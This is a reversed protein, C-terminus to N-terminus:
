NKPLEFERIGEDLGVIRVVQRKPEAAPAAVAVAPAPPQSNPALLVPPPLPEPSQAAPVPTVAGNVAVSLELQKPAEVKAQVPEKSAAPESRKFASILQERSVNLSLVVNEADTGIEFGRLAPPFAATM